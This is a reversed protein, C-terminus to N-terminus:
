ESVILDRGDMKYHYDVVTTNPAIMMNYWEEMRSLVLVRCVFVLTPVHMCAKSSGM